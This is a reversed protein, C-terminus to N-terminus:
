TSNLIQMPFVYYLGGLRVFSKPAHKLQALRSWVNAKNFIGEILPEAKSLREQLPLQRDVPALKRLAVPLLADFKTFLVVVPVLCTVPILSLATTAPSLEGNGPDCEDFFMEESRQIARDLKDM